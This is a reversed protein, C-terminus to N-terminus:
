IDSAWETTTLDLAGITAVADAFSAGEIEVPFSANTIDAFYQALSNATTTTNAYNMTLGEHPYHRPRNGTIEPNFFDM